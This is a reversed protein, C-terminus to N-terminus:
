DFLVIVVLKKEMSMIHGCHYKRLAFDNMLVELMCIATPGYVGIIDVM